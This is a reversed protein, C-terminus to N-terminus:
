IYAWLVMAIVNKVSHFTRKEVSKSSAELLKTNLAKDYGNHQFNLVIGSLWLSSYWTIKMRYVIFLDIDFYMQAKM